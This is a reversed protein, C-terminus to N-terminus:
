SQVKAKTKAWNETNVKRKRKNPNPQIKNGRSAVAEEKMTVLNLKNKM